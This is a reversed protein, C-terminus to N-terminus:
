RAHAREPLRTTAEVHACAFHRGREGRCFSQELPAPFSDLPSSTERRACPSIANRKAGSWRAGVIRKRRKQQKHFGPYPRSPTSRLAVCYARTAWWGSSKAPVFKRDPLAHARLIVGRRSGGGLTRLGVFYRLSVTIVIPFGNMIGHASKGAVNNLM